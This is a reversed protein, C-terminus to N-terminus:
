ISPNESEMPKLEIISKPVASGPNLANMVNRAKDIASVFVITTPKTQEFRIAQRKPVITDLIVKAANIRDGAKPAAFCANHLTRLADQVLKTGNLDEPFPILDNDMM